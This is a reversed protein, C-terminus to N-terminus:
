NAAIEGDKPSCLMRAAERDIEAEDFAAGFQAFAELTLDVVQLVTASM